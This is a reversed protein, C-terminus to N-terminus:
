NQISIPLSYSCRVEQGRQKAPTWKDCNNLVRIAEEGTGYGLDRLVRPEVIKGDKDVVFTIYVKGKTGQPMNPLRYNKSLYKYFDMIGSKFEPKTEIETYNYSINNNDVSEGSILKGNKYTEKYTCKSNKFSGEWIGDKFGNKVEGKEYGNEDKDEFIGNGDVIKPVGNEDWFQNIKHIATMKKEDEIYEGELKKSGNEYWELDIGNERGKVYNTLSKKNTNKYYYTFIGEKTNGSNTESTGEMRMEGSRYYEQVAYRKKNLKSDRIVRIYLYNKSKTEQNTSDLYVFKDTQSLILENNKSVQSICLKPVFLFLITLLIPKM